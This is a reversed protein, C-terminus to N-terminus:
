RLLFRVVLFGILGLGLLLFGWHKFITGGWNEKVRPDWRSMKDRRELHGIM